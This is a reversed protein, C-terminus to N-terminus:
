DKEGELRLRIRKERLKWLMAYDYFVLVQRLEKVDEVMKAIETRLNVHRAIIRDLESCIVGYLREALLRELQDMDTM